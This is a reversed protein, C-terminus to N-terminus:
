VIRGPNLLGQPDFSTKLNKMLRIEESSRSASLWARKDLGIGHEASISGKFQTLRRYVVEDCDEHTVGDEGPNVFLHLNGDAMHGFVHFEVQPWRAKLDSDLEDVYAPMDRIPLSVDYLYSPLIADFEERVDWLARRETDSKPIVADVIVGAEFAQELLLNFREDDSGPDAGEAEIMVYFAYDRDMPPRHAGPETVARYYSNWMIEYANLTGALDAQATKLLSIVDDFSQMAVMATQRSAPLPFLRVVARTVVGLTGESGIFLQKLDYGTNNKLMQNMSSVVTGDVLVAELGLVLNRMMGYRLVNMGGANTAVTGGITCSGRAGLDLPFLLGQEALQEQVTQLVAGGQITATCGVEDVAEIASMRELSLILDDAASEAGAVVGTRGGQVVMTQGHEHCLRMVQSLQETSDPRLLALAQTPAPNWYSTAREALVEAPVIGGPGLLDELLTLLESM